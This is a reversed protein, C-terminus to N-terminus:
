APRADKPKEVLAALKEEARAMGSAVPPAAPQPTPTAPRATPPLSESLPTKEPYAWNILLRGRILFGSVILYFVIPLVGNIIDSKDPAEILDSGLAQAVANLGLYLFILGLLRVGLGFIDKAKM